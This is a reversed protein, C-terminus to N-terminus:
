KIFYLLVNSTNIDCIKVITKNVQQVIFGSSLELKM